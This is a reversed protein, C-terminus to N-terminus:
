PTRENFASLSRLFQARSGAVILGVGCQHAKSRAAPSFRRANTVVVPRPEGQIDYASVAGLVEDVAGPGCSRNTGIHKCQVVLTHQGDSSLAIGDAGRDASKPTARADYGADRLLQLVWREFQEGDMIGVDHDLAQQVDADRRAEDPWAGPARDRGVTPKGGSAQRRAGETTDALLRDVDEKSAAVPALVRRNMERKQNMLEDLKVDFSFEGFDPHVALPLYVHVPQDQGIRHVRDTCQDEVAPNWWRSLHIVHNAATLTLGVGGARPSLLMVDFGSRQQFRDVRAKREPGAVAGNIVLVDEPLAFKRRIAALLFSQMKLAEVFVLAKEGQARIRALLDFTTALRASQGIYYDMDGGDDQVGPHLSVSRLRHLTELPPVGTRSDYVVQAYATAQANPMKLRLRHVQKDPLKRIHEEKLRRLMVAPAETGAHDAATTLRAHLHGLEQDRNQSREYRHSFDKLTGFAGPQCRDLVSWIDAPRNEVPTGTMLLAFDINMALAAETMKTAPNKIKQAEDFVGVGWRVFAFSHQYDRLTEYTTLVWNSERLQKVDLVPRGSALEREGDAEQRLHRLSHGYARTVTGLGPDTMHRRHEDEWNKLLGTPAIVLLPRRNLKGDRMLARVCSMFALAQLTKGLGMDDALLAGQSGSEWHQHLWIVGTQQHALLTSKLKAHYDSSKAGRPELARRYEVAELNDIVELVHDRRDTPPQTVEAPMNPLVVHEQAILAEVQAITDNSAVLQVGCVNIAPVGQRVAAMLETHLDPLDSVTIPLSTGGVVIGVEEPPLWPQAPRTAWPLERDSWVVIGRVRESLGHDFFVDDIRVDEDAAGAFASRLYTFPQKLFDVRRQPSQGQHQRVVGLARFAQPTFFLYTGGGLPYQQRALSFRRFYRRFSSLSEGQLTERFRAEDERGDRPTVYEGPIPDFDPEGASNSFPELRFTSAVVIRLSKLHGDLVVDDPLLKSVRGWWLMRDEIDLMDHRRYDDIAEVVSYGPDLLVFSRDGADLWAGIRRVRAPRGQDIYRYEVRFDSHGIAGTSEMELAFPAPAPLGSLRLEEVSLTAIADWQVTLSDPATELAAGDGCLRVFTGLRVANEDSTSLWDRVPVDPVQVLLGDQGPRYRVPSPM